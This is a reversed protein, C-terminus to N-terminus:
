TGKLDTSGEFAKYFARQVDSFNANPDQMMEFWDKASNPSSSPLLTQGSVMQSKIAFLLLLAAVILTFRKTSM